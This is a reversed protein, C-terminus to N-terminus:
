TGNKKRPKGIGLWLLGALILLFWVVLFRRKGLLFNIWYSDPFLIPLYELLLFAALTVFSLVIVVVSVKQNGHSKKIFKLM